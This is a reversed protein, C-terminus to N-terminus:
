FQRRGRRLQDDQRFGIMEKLHHFGRIHSGVGRSIGLRTRQRRVNRIFDGVENRSSIARM